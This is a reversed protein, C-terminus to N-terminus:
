LFAVLDLDNHFELAAFHAMLIVSALNQGLELLSTGIDTRGILLRDKLSAVHGNKKRRYLISGAIREFPNYVWFWLNRTLSLLFSSLVIFSLDCLADALLNVSVLLPKTLIFWEWWRWLRPRFVAFLFLCRRVPVYREWLKAGVTLAIIAGAPM